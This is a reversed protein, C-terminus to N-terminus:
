CDSLSPIPIAALYPELVHTSGSIRVEEISKDKADFFTEVYYNEMMFLFIMSRGSSRKAVLVGQHVIANKKAQLDLLMFESLSM